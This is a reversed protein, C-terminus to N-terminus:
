FGDWDGIQVRWKQKLLETSSPSNGAGMLIQQKPLLWSPVPLYLSRLSQLITKDNGIRLVFRVGLECAVQVALQSLMAEVSNNLGFCEMIVILRRGNVDVERLVLLGDQELDKDISKYVQYKVDPRRTYRWNMYASNRQLIPGDLPRLKSFFRDQGEDFQLIKQFRQDKIGAAPIFRLSTTLTGRNIWGFKRFGPASNSNPYGFFIENLEMKERLAVLCKTFYGHGRSETATASDCSQWVRTNGTAHCLILPFMANMAVLRSDQRVQAILAKGAPPSYKWRYYDPTQIFGVDNKSLLASFASKQLNVIEDLNIQDLQNVTVTV